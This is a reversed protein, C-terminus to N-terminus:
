NHLARVFVASNSFSCLIIILPKAERKKDSLLQGNKVKRGFSM